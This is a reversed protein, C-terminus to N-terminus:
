GAGDMRTPGTIIVKIKLLKTDASMRPDEQWCLHPAARSAPLSASREKTSSRGWGGSMGASAPVWNQGPQTFSQTGADAPVLPLTPQRGGDQLDYPGPPFTAMESPGPGGFPAGAISLTSNVTLM